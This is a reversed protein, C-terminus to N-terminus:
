VKKKQKQSGFVYLVNTCTTKTNCGNVFCVNCRQNEFHVTSSNGIFCFKVYIWSFLKKRKIFAHQMEKLKKELNQPFTPTILAMFLSTTVFYSEEM